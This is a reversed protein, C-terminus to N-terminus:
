VSSQVSACCVSDDHGSFDSEGVFSEERTLEKLSDKFHSVFELTVSQIPTTVSDVDLWDVPVWIFWFQTLDPFRYKMGLALIIQANSLLTEHGSSLSIFYSYGVDSKHISCLNLITYM